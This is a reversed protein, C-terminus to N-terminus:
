NKSADPTECANIEEKIRDISVGQNCWDILKVRQQTLLLSQNGSFLESRDKSAQVLISIM